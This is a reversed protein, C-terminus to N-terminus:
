PREIGYKKMKSYLTGRAIELTKAARYLNGSTRDLVRRILTEEARSLAWSSLDLSITNERSPSPINELNAPVIETGRCFIVANEIINALERVNGPWRYDILLKMAANSIRKINKRNKMCFKKMFFDALLPIDSKRKRLPPLDINVVNIRYYLDERFQKQRIMETLPRNTACVLRTDTRLTQTSGVRQFTGSEIATLLSVQTSLPVDGIEDLFLTGKDAIEFYGKKVEEAGTYAGKEHGFLENGILNETLAACNVRTFPAERRESRYHIASATREKGTGTEGTILVTACTPAVDAIREFIDLMAPARGVIDEFRYDKRREKAAHPKRRVFGKHGTINEIVEPILEFFRTKPIYDYAGSRMANVEVEINGSGTVVVVFIEPYRLKIEELLSLGGAESAAMDAIVIEAPFTELKMLASEAGSITEIELNRNEAMATFANRADIDDDVFLVRNKRPM